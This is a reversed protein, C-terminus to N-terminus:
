SIGLIAKALKLPDTKEPPQISEVLKREDFCPDCVPENDDWKTAPEPCDLCEVYDKGFTCCQGLVRDGLRVVKDTPCEAGCAWCKETEVDEDEGFLRDLYPDHDPGNRDFNSRM